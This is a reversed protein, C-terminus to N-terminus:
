EFEVQLYLIGPNLSTGRSNFTPNRGFEEFSFPIKLDFAIRSDEMINSLEITNAIALANFAAPFSFCLSVLNLM